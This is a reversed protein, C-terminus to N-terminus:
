GLPKRPGTRDIRFVPVDDNRWPGVAFPPVVVPRTVASTSLAKQQPAQEPRESGASGDGPAETRRKGFGLGLVFSTWSGLIFARLADVSGPWGDFFPVRQTQFSVSIAVVFAFGCALGVFLWTPARRLSRPGLCAGLRRGIPLGACIGAALGVGVEAAGAVDLRRGEIWWVGLAGGLGGGVGLGLVHRGPFKRVAPTKLM